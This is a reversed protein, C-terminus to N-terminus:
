AKDARDQAARDTYGQPYRKSLKIYNAEAADSMTYGFQDLLAALYFMCDGCEEILNQHDLDKGYIWAKKLADILEGAEGSVGMVAHVARGMQDIPKIFLKRVHAHFKEEDFAPKLNQILGQDQLHKMVVQEAAYTQAAQMEKIITM